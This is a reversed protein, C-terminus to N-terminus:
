MCQKSPCRFSKKWPPCSPSNELIKRFPSLTHIQKKWKFSLFYSKKALIKSIRGVGMRVGTTAQESNQM